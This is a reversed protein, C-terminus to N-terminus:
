QCRLHLAYLVLLHNLMLLESSFTPVRQLIKVGLITRASASALSSSSYFTCCRPISQPRNPLELIPPSYSFTFSSDPNFFLFSARQLGLRTLSNRKSRELISAVVYNIDAARKAVLHLLILMCECSRQRFTISIRRFESCRALPVLEHTNSRM